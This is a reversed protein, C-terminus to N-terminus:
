LATAIAHELRKAYEPGFMRKYEDNIIKDYPFIAKYKQIKKYALVMQLDPRDTNRGRAQFRGRRDRQSRLTRRGAVGGRKRVKVYLGPKVNRLHPPAGRIPVNVFKNNRLAAKIAKGTRLKDINGHNDLRIPYTNDLRNNLFKYSPVTVYKASDPVRGTTGGRAQLDLEEEIFSLPFVEAQANNVGKAQILKKSDFRYRFIANGGKKNTARNTFQETPKDLYRGSARSVKNAASKVTERMAQSLAFPIQEKQINDLDKALDKVTSTLNIEVM